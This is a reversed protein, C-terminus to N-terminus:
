KKHMKHMKHMIVVHKAFNLKMRLTPIANTTNTVYDYYIRLRKYNNTFMEISIQKLM